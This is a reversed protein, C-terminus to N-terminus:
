RPYPTSTRPYGYQDYFTRRWLARRQNYASKELPNAGLVKVDIMVPELTPLDYGDKTLKENTQQNWDREAARLKGLLPDTAAKAQRRYQDWRKTVGQAFFSTASSITNRTELSGSQKTVRVLEELMKTREEAVSIMTGVLNIGADYVPRKGAVVQGKKDLLRERTLVMPPVLDEPSTPNLDSFLQLYSAELQRSILVGGPAKPAPSTASPVEETTPKFRTEYYRYGFVVMGLFLLFAFLSKM